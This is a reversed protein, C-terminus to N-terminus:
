HRRQRWYGPRRSDHAVALIEVVHDAAIDYIVWYPFQRMHFRRSGRESPWREPAEGIRKLARKYEGLFRRGADPDRESYWRRSARAERAAEPHIRL